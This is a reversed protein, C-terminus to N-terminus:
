TLEEIMKNTNPSLDSSNLLTYTFSNGWTKAAQKMIYMFNKFEWNNRFVQCGASSRQIFKPLWRATTHMNIGFWGKVLEMGDIEAVSNKNNDRYGVLPTNQQLAEKGKHNGVRFAGPIQDEKLIFAGKSSMPNVLWPKGPVTTAQYFNIYYQNAFKWFVYIIDNWENPKSNENRIAGLNVNYNLSDKLFIKYDKDKYVNILNDIIKMKKDFINM